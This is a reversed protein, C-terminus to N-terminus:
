CDSHINRAFDLATFNPMVFSMEVISFHYLMELFLVLNKWILNDWM